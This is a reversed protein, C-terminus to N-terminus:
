CLKKPSCNLFVVFDLLERQWYHLQSAQLHCWPSSFFPLSLEHFKVNGTLAIPAKMRSPWDPNGTLYTLTFNAASYNHKREAFAPTVKNDSICGNQSPLPSLTGTPNWTYDCLGFSQDSWRHSTSRM